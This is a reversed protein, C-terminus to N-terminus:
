TFIKTLPHGRKETRVKSCVSIVGKEVYYEIENSIFDGTKGTISSTFYYIEPTGHLIGNVVLEDWAHLTTQEYIQDITFSEKVLFYDGSKIKFKM